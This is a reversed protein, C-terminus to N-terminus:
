EGEISNKYVIEAVTRVEIYVRDINMIDHFWWHADWLEHVAYSIYKDKFCDLVKLNEDWLGELWTESRDFYKNDDADCTLLYKNDLPECLVYMFSAGTDNYGSIYPILKIEIEYDILDNHEDKKIELKEIFSQAQANAKEAASVLLDNVKLLKSVNEETWVFNSHLRAGREHIIDNLLELMEKKANKNHLCYEYLDVALEELEKIAYEELQKELSNEWINLSSKIKTYKRLKSVKLLEDLDSVFHKDAALLVIKGYVDAEDLTNNTAYEVGLKDAFSLLHSHQKIFPWVKWGLNHFCFYKLVPSSVGFWELNVLLIDLDYGMRKSVICNDGIFPFIKNNWLEALTPVCMLDESTYRDHLIALNPQVCLEPPKLLSFFSDAKKGDQYKVMGISYITHRTFYKTHSLEIAITVFNM